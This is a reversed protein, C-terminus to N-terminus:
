GMHNCSLNSINRLRSVVIDPLYGSESRILIRGLKSLYVDKNKAGYYNEFYWDFVYRIANNADKYDLIDTDILKADDPNAIDIITFPAHVTGKKNTSLKKIWHEEYDKYTECEIWDFDSNFSEFVSIGSYRYLDDDIKALEDYSKDVGDSFIFAGFGDEDEYEIGSEPHEKIYKLAKNKAKIFRLYCKKITRYVSEVTVDSDKKGVIFSSSSSNTVFDSRFKM